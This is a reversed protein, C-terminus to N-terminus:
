RLRDGYFTFYKLMRATREKNFFSNLLEAIKLDKEYSKSSRINSKNFLNWKIM